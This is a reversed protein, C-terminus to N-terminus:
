RIGHQEDSGHGHDGSLEPREITPSVLDGGLRDQRPPSGSGKGSRVGRRRPPGVPVAEEGLVWGTLSSVSWPGSSIQTIWIFGLSSPVSGLVTTSIASRRLSSEPLRENCWSSPKM